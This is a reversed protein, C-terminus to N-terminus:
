KNTVLEKRSDEREHEQCYQWILVGFLKLAERKRYDIVGESVREIEALSCETEPFECFYSKVLIDKYLKGVDDGYKGVLDLIANIDKWLWPARLAKFTFARQEKIAKNNNKLMLSLLERRIKQKDQAIEEDSMKNSPRIISNYGKKAGECMFRTFYCVGTPDLGFSLCLSDIYIEDKTPRSM